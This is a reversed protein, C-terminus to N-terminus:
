KEKPMVFWHFGDRAILAEAIEPGWTDAAYNPFNLSPNHQWSELVPDIVEWAAEVQDARMFLTADGEVVDLLLTEYAEPAASKYVEEYNFVMDVGNILMKLGPRKAQFRLMIGMQPQINMIFRNQQWNELADIPFAQHPVPRFQIMILSSTEPMRKGTRLYFPVDQWRWNDIFLKLAVFTETNSDAAVDKEERYGIVKKGEIWGTGYQGRVALRQVDEKDLPRIARLVDVKKNRVENANFSVPPEMAILCLLQLLHNQIMDRLAGAHEYYSGRNEVGIQESVTIQVHDIFNRNWLPEFLANAFRFALINQVTEKGLYHDIRYIQQEKFCQLLEANLQQASKLDHGFPKEIVIRTREHDKALGSKRLNESIIGILQPAVAFYFIVNPKEKWEKEKKSIFSSIRRYADAKTFDASAYFLNPEFKKWQSSKAKGRRSFKNVGELLTARFKEDNLPRGVGLVCFNEPLFQDLHLNYLAPILKRNTLDGSAGFIVFISPATSVTEQIEKKKSM